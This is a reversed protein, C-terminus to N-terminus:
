INATFQFTDCSVTNTADNQVRIAAKIQRALENLGEKAEPSALKRAMDPYLKRFKEQRQTLSSQRPMM